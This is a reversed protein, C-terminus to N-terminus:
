FLIDEDQDATKLVDNSASGLSSAAKANNQVCFCLMIDFLAASGASRERPLNHTIAASSLHERVGSFPGM